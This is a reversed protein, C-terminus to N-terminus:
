KSVKKGALFKEYDLQIHNSNCRDFALASGLKPRPLCITFFAM